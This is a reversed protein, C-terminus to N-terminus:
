HTQLFSCSTAILEFLLPSNSRNNKRFLNIRSINSVEWVWEVKEFSALYIGLLGILATPFPASPTTLYNETVRSKGTLAKLSALCIYINELVKLKWFVYMTCYYIYHLFYGVELIGQLQLEQFLLYLWIVWKISPQNCNHLTIYDM